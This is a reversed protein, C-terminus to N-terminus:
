ATQTIQSSANLAWPLELPSGHGPTRADALIEEHVCQTRQVQRPNLEREGDREVDDERGDGDTQGTKQSHEFPAPQLAIVPDVFVEVM